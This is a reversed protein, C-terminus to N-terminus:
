NSAFKLILNFLEQVEGRPPGYSQIDKVTDQDILILRVDFSPSKPPFNSYTKESMWIVNSLRLIESLGAQSVKIQQKEDKASDVPRGADRAKIVILSASSIDFIYAASRSTVGGTLFTLGTSPMLSVEFKGLETVRKVGTKTSGFTTQTTKTALQTNTMTAECSTLGVIAAIGVLASISQNIKTHIVNSM